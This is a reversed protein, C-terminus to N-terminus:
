VEGKVYRDRAREATRKSAHEQFEGVTEISMFDPSFQRVTYLRATDSDYKESSIFTRSHRDFDSWRANFFRKNGGSFWSGGISEHARVADDMNWWEVTSKYTFEAAHAAKRLEELRKLRPGLKSEFAARKARARMWKEELTLRKSM